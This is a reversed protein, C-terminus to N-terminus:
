SWVGTHKPRRQYRRKSPIVAARQIRGERMAVVNAERRARALGKAIDAANM